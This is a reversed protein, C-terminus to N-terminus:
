YYDYSVMEFKKIIGLKKYKEIVKLNEDGLRYHIINFSFSKQSQRNKWNIFFEELDKSNLSHLNSPYM